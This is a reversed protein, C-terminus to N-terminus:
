PSLARAVAGYAPEYVSERVCRAFLWQELRRRDLDLLEAVRRAFAAPDAALRDPHNLMHQLPDYTPDGLYPKPDIALWPERGAALVNGPHLDTCLLARREANRPLGRLLEMGARALGPDLRLGPDCMAYHQEFDVAWRDCMSALSRFSHGSPPEIWLRRLLSALIADQELPARAEALATGPECRELLLASVDDFRMSDILQAMGGGCWARMGEAEHEAEEHRWGVKLVLRSGATDRAPAAWSSAGGPQFPREVQLSWRRSLDDVVRPLTALWARRPSDPDDRRAIDRVLAVPLEFYGV